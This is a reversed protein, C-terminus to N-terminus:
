DGFVVVRRGQAPGGSPGAAAGPMRGAPVARERGWGRIEEIQEPNTRSLPFTNAFTDIVFESRLAAAGGNLMVEAGVEHLASEIDSGAFGDSMGVLKDLLE